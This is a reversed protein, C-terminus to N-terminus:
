RVGIRGDDVFHKIFHEDAVCDLLDADLRPFRRANGDRENRPIIRYLLHM